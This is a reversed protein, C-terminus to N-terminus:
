ARGRIEEFGVYCHTGKYDFSQGEAISQEVSLGGYEREDAAMDEEGFDAVLQERITALAEAESEAPMVFTDHGHKHEYLIFYLNM